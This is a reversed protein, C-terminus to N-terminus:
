IFKFYISRGNKEERDSKIQLVSPIDTTIHFEIKKHGVHQPQEFVDSPSLTPHMNSNLVFFMLSETVSLHM